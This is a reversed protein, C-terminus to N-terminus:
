NRRTDGSSVGATDDLRNELSRGCLNIEAVKPELGLESDICVDELVEEDDDDAKSSEGVRVFDMMECDERRPRPCRGVREPPEDMGVFNVVGAETTFDAIGATREWGLGKRGNAAM